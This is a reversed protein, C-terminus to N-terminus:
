SGPEDDDDLVFRDGERRASYRAGKGSGYVCSLKHQEGRLGCSPCRDPEADSGDLEDPPVLGGPDDCLHTPRTRDHHMARSRRVLGEAWSEADPEPSLVEAAYHDFEHAADALVSALSALDVPAGAEALDALLKAASRYAAARGQAIGLAHGDLRALTRCDCQGAFEASRGICRPDHDTM